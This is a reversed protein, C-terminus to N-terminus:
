GFSLMYECVWVGKKKVFGAWGTDRDFGNEFGHVLEVHMTARRRARDYGPLSLRVNWGLPLRPVPRWGGGPRSSSLYDFFERGSVVQLDLPGFPALTARLKSRRHADNWAQQDPGKPREYLRAGSDVGVERFVATPRLNEKRIVWQVFATFIEYDDATPDVLGAQGFASATM